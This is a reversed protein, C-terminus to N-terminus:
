FILKHLAFLAIYNIMGFVYYLEGFTLKNNNIVLFAYTFSSCSRIFEVFFKEFLTIQEFFTKLYIKLYMIYTKNFFFFDKFYTNTCM